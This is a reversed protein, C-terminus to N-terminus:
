AGAFLLPHCLYRQPHHNRSITFIWVHNIVNIMFLIFLQDAQSVFYSHLNIFKYVSKVLLSFMEIIKKKKYIIKFGWHTRSSVRSIVDHYMESRKTANLYTAIRRLTIQHFCCFQIKSYTITISTM